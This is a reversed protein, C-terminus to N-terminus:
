SNRSATIWAFRSIPPNGVVAQGLPVHGVATLRETPDLPGTGSSCSGYAGIILLGDPAVVKRLLWEVYAGFFDVPVCDHLSYVYRFRTPPRWKWANGVYFHGAYPPLRQRALEVLPASHDLGYPILKVGRENAWTVLCELLYGNACGIDLIEGDAHIPDLISEREARWREAGGAFGSQRIPDVEKLYSTELDRLRSLFAPPLSHRYMKNSWPVM